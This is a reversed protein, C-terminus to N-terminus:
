LSSQTGLIFVNTSDDLQGTAAAALAQAPAPRALTNGDITYYNLKVVLKPSVWYNLAFGLSSHDDAINKNDRWDYSAAVQWHETPKFAAEVYGLNV